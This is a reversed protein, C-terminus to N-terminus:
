AAILLAVGVVILVIGGLERLSLPQKFSYYSVAQAFLVEVLALTRVNAAATLAFALFWFQSAFAGIFGPAMSPRWM